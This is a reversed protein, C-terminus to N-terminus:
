LQILDSASPQFQISDIIADGHVNIAAVDGPSLRHQYTTLCVGDVHVLWTDERYVFRGGAVTTTLTGVPCALWNSAASRPSFEWPSSLSLHM